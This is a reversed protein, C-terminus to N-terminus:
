RELVSELTEFFGPFSTDVSEVGRIRVPGEAVLAAVAAAMAIRHDGQAEVTGGGRLPREPDGDVVLGDARAECAVGFARLMALTTEVRDSEKARLEAADRFISRGPCTAALVALVPIEDVLRPVLAGGVEFPRLEAGEFVLDAVPEGLTERPSGRRVRAGAAELVEFAGDRTPNVGVGPVRARWGPRLSAAVAFFAAQSPDAPIDLVQSPARLAAAVGEAGGGFGRLAAGDPLREVEVGFAALMRETHDRSPQPEHVVTTGRAFLGALLLCSKVQASAVESRHEIGSLGGGHICLPALRGGDRGDVRAGMRRLPELVRAMPRKRLSADGTLVSLFPQGALLGALLRMTTGANGCDLVDAPERL